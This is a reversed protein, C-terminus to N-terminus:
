ELVIICIFGCAANGIRLIALSQIVKGRIVEVGEAGLFSKVPIWAARCKEVIRPIANSFQHPGVTTAKVQLGDVQRLQVPIDLRKIVGGM